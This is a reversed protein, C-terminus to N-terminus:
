IFSSVHCVVVFSARFLKMKGVGVDDDSDASGGPVQAGYAKIYINGTSGHHWYRFHMMGIM